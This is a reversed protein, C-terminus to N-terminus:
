DSVIASRKSRGGIMLPKPVTTMHEADDSTEMKVVPERKVFVADVNVPETKHETSFRNWFTDVAQMRVQGDTEAPLECVQLRKSGGHAVDLVSRAYSVVTDIGMNNGAQKADACPDM